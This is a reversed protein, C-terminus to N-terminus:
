QLGEVMYVLHVEVKKHYTLSSHHMPPWVLQQVCLRVRTPACVCLPSCKKLAAAPPPAPSCAWYCQRLGHSGLLRSHIPPGGRQYTVGPMSPNLKTQNGTHLQPQQRTVGSSMSVVGFLTLGTM